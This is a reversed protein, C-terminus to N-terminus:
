GTSNLLRRVVERVARGTSLRATVAGSASAGAILWLAEATPTGTAVLATASLTSVAVIAASGLSSIGRGECVLECM